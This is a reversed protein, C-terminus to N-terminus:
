TCHWIKTCWIIGKVSSFEILFALQGKLVEYQGVSKASKYTGLPDTFNTHFIKSWFQLKQKDAKGM